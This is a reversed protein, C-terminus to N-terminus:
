RGGALQLRKGGWGGAGGEGREERCQVESLNTKKHRAFLTKKRPTPTDTPAICHTWRVARRTAPTWCRASQSIPERALDDVPSNSIGPVVFSPPFLTSPHTAWGVWRQHPIHQGETLWRGVAVYWLGSHGGGCGERGVRTRQCRCTTPVPIPLTDYCVDLSNGHAPHITHTRRTFIKARMRVPLLCVYQAAHAHSFVSM